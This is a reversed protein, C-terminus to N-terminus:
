GHKLAGAEQPPLHQNFLSNLRLQLFEAKRSAARSLNRLHSRERLDSAAGARRKLALAEQKLANIRNQMLDRLNKQLSM